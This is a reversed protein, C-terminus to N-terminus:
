TEHQLQAMVPAFQTEYNWEAAIRKRGAEGMARTRVPNELFWRLATAIQDPSEPNCSRAYGGGVYLSEWEATDTVLLALGCALYDFPKNSAGVLPEPFQRAILALGVDAQRASIYLERRSLTGLYRVRAAVELHQALRLLESVYGSHGITEYGAFRLTVAPPLQALASV